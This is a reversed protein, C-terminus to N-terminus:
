VVLRVCNRRLLARCRLWLDDSPPLAILWTRLRREVEIRRWDEMAM